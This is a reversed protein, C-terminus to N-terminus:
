IIYQYEHPLFKRSFLDGRFNPVDMIDFSFIFLFAFNIEIFHCEMLSIRFKIATFIFLNVINM